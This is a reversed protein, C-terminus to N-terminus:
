TEKQAASTGSVLNRLELMSEYLRNIKDKLDSKGLDGLEVSGGGGTYRNTPLPPAMTLLDAPLEMAEQNPAECIELVRTKLDENVKATKTSNGLLCFSEQVGSFLEAVQKDKAILSEIDESDKPSLLGLSYDILTQELNSM